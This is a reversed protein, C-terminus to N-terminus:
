TTLIDHLHALQKRLHNRERWYELTVVQPHTKALTRELLAYDAQDLPEHADDLMGDRLRPGSVHIEVVRDLPLSDIYTDADMHLIPAATRAHGLDLLLSCGTADLIRRIREPETHFSYRGRPNVPWTMNELVIPVSVQKQWARVDAIYRVTAREPSIPLYLGWRVALRLPLPPITSMHLSAWPSGTCELYTRMRALRPAVRGLGRLMAGPHFYIPFQPFRAKVSQVQELSYYPGVELADIPAANEALLDLLHACPGTALQIPSM